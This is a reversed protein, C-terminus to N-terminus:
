SCIQNGESLCLSPFAFRIRLPPHRSLSVVSVSQWGLRWSFPRLASVPPPTCAALRLPGQSCSQRGGLSFLLIRCPPLTGRWCTGRHFCLSSPAPPPTGVAPWRPRTHYSRPHCPVDPLQHRASSNERGQKLPLLLLLPFDTHGQSSITWGQTHFTRLWVSFTTRHRWPYPVQVQYPHCCMSSM